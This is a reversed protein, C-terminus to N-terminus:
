GRCKRRAEAVSRFKQRDRYCRIARLLQCSASIYTERYGIGREAYLSVNSSSKQLDRM